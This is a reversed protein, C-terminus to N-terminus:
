VVPKTIWCLADPVCLIKYSFNELKIEVNTKWKASHDVLTACKVGLLVSNLSSEGSCTNSDARARILYVDGVQLGSFLLFYFINM